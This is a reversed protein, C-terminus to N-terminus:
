VDEFARSACRSARNEGAAGTSEASNGPASSPGTDLGATLAQRVRIPEGPQHDLNEGAADPAWVPLGGDDIDLLPTVDTTTNGPPTVSNPHPWDTSWVIRDPNAAILAKRFSM